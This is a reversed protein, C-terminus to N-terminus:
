QSGQVDQEIHFTDGDPSHVDYLHSKLDEVADFIGTYTFVSMLEYSMGLVGLEGTPEWNCMCWSPYIGFSCVKAM